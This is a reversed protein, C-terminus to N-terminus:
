LASNALRAAGNIVTRGAVSLVFSIEGGARATWAVDVEDDPLVAAAFKVVTFGALRTGPCRSLIAAAAHDLLVVGPVIPRGPFHGALSRHQRPIAFRATLRM